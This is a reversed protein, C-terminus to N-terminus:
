FYPTFCLLCLYPHSLNDHNFKHFCYIRNWFFNFGGLAISILVINVQVKWNLKVEDSIDLYLSFDLLDRVRDDWMPHLGEIIIIPTPEVKEPTDLTGNVHNYIPKDVAEGNKLAKIQEYMLDFDNELPDLATRETVKRGARDNLHFDDLCIVTTLDSVLTNTEWGGEKGFGGGLPGVRKGGGFTSTLRRMFTSKGCGSDAAVGIM